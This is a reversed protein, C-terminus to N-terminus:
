KALAAQLGEFVELEIRAEAKEAEPATSGLVRNADAIGARVGQKHFTLNCIDRRHLSDLPLPTSPRVIIRPIVILASSKLSTPHTSTSLFALSSIHPNYFM